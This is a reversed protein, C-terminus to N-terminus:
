ANRSPRPPAPAPSPASARAALKAVEMISRRGAKDCGAFYGVLQLIDRRGHGGPPIAVLLQWGELGFVAAIAALSDARPDKRARVLNNVTKRDLKAATAVAPGTMGSERM